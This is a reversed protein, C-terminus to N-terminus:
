SISHSPRRIQPAVAAIITLRDRRSSSTSHLEGFRAPLLALAHLGEERREAGPGAVGAIDAAAHAVRQEAQGDAVDIEGGPEGWLIHDLPEGARPDLRHRRADGVARDGRDHGALRDFHRREAPVDGGVAAPRRDGIGVVPALVAGAAVERDVCQEGIGDRELDVVIEAALRIERGAPDAEDAVRQGPDGFVMQPDQTEEAEEGAEALALRVALRQRRAGGAGVVQHRQGPLSDGVLQGLQEGQGSRQIRDAQHDLAADQLRDQRFDAHVPDLPQGPQQRALGLGADRRV